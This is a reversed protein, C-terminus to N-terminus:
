DNSQNSLLEPNEHINWIIEIKHLDWVDGIKWLSRFENEYLYGFAWCLSIIEWYQHYSRVIDGEYIEKWNKDKLNTYQWLTKPIICYATWIFHDERPVNSIIKHMQNSEDFWYGGEVWEGNDLRQGRFKIERTM